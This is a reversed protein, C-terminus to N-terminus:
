ASPNPLYKTKESELDRAEIELIETEFFTERNRKSQEKLLRARLRSDLGYMKSYKRMIQKRSRKPFCSSLISFDCGYKSVIDALTREEEASWERDNNNTQQTNIAQQEEESSMDASSLRRM